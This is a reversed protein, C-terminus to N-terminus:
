AQHAAAGGVGMRSDGDEDVSGNRAGGAAASMTNIAASPHQPGVNAKGPRVNPGNRNLGSVAHAGNFAPPRANNAARNANPGGVVM